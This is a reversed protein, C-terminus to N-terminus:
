SSTLIEIMAKIRDDDTANAEADLVLRGDVLVQIRHAGPGMVYGISGADARYWGGVTCKLWQVVGKAKGKRPGRTFVPLNAYLGEVVAPAFRRLLFARAFDSHLPAQRLETSAYQGRRKM